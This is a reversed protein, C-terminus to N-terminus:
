DTMLHTLATEIEKFKFRFGHDMIKKPTVKQGECFMQAMEGLGLRLVSEPITLWCPRKYSTALKSCFTKVSIHEPAVCNIPGSINKHAMIYALIECVDQYHIWPFSQTGPGMCHGVYYKFLRSLQQYAGGKKGLVIGLRLRVVRSTKEAPSVSKEWDQCMKGIFDTALVADEDCSDQGSLDTASPYVGIASANIYLSVQTKGSAIVTALAQSPVCRSDSLIKKRKKTWVGGIIAAGCLNIVVDTEKLYGLFSDSNEPDWFLQQSNKPRRSLVQVQHGNEKLFTSLYHGLFGSGGAIIINKQNNM